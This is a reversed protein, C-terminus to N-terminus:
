VQTRRFGPRHWAQVTFGLKECSALLEAGHTAPLCAEVVLRNGDPSSYLRLGSVNRTLLQAYKPGGKGFDAAGRVHPVLNLSLLNEGPGDWFVHRGAAEAAKLRSYTDIIEAFGNRTIMRKLLQYCRHPDGHELPLHVYCGSNGTYNRPVHGLGRTNCWLALARRGPQHAAVEQCLHAALFLRADTLSKKGLHQELSELPVSFVTAQTSALHDQEQALALLHPVERYHPPLTADKPPSDPFTHRRDHVVAPAVVEGPAATLHNLFLALGSGDLVMHSVMVGLVCADSDSLWTLRLQLLPAQLAQMPSRVAAAASPAFRAFLTEQDLSELAQLSARGAPRGSDGSDASEPLPQGVRVWELQVERDGPVLDAQLPQLDLHIRASLHPFAQLASQLSARLAVPDLRHSYGLLLVMSVPLVDDLCLRLPKFHLSPVSFIADPQVPKMM